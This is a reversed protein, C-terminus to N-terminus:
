GVRAKEPREASRIRFRLRAGVGNGEQELREAGQESLEEVAAGQALAAEVCWEAFEPQSQILGRSLLLTDVRREKLARETDERGLCARGRAGAADVVHALLASQYLNTLMSAAQEAGQRVEAGSMEMHLSPQETCRGQLNRPLAAVTASVTQGVGGLVLFGHAGLLDTLVGVLHKIMRESSVELARQGSDLSTEGRVGTRSTARKSINVDTLDGVFTDARLDLLEELHGGSYRFIRARQSDVLAVIVPREQKLGRVYPAARIGEEWYVGDPMPVPVSEAYWVRGPTAFGVWGKEPVFADFNELRAKLQAWASEFEKIERGNQGLEKKMRAIEHELRVRWKNREAPDHQDGDLYISLVKEERLRRYLDILTEHTLM